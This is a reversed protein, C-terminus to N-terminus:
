GANSMEGVRQMFQMGRLLQEKRVFEDPQHAQDISGPGCVVVPLGHQQFFGGETGFAVYSTQNTEALRMALSIHPANEAVASIGPVVSKSRTIVGCQSDQARLANNMAAQRAYFPALLQEVNEGPVPRVEWLMRAHRPIINRAVGGEMVGVHVTTFAPTFGKATAPPNRRATDRIVNLEHMLAGLEMVANVGQHPMSSHAEKGTVVTEFSHIGKHATVLQMETPEGIVVLSPAIGQALITQAIATAGLCGIEEDHSFALWIPRTVNLSVWYPVYALALALFSKMDSTGRGYFVDNLESLFYPHASWRQDKTPVV